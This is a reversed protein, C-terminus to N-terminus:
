SAVPPASPKTLKSTEGVRARSVAPVMPSARLSKAATFRGFTKILIGPVFSPKGAMRCISVSPTFM